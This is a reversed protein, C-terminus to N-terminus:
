YKNSLDIIFQEEQLTLYIRKSYLKDLAKKYTIDQLNEKEIEESSGSAFGDEVLYEVLQKKETYSCEDYFDSVDVDIDVTVNYQTINAM